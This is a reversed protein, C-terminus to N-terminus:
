LVVIARGAITVVLTLEAGDLDLGKVKWNGNKQKKCDDARM